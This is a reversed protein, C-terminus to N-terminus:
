RRRASAKSATLEREIATGADIAAQTEVTRESTHWGIRDFLADVDAETTAASLELVELAHRLEHGVIAISADDVKGSVVIRLVRYRGAASIKHSFGGLLRTAPGTPPPPTLFVLGDTRQVRELLDKLVASRGAAANAVATALRCDLIRVHEPLVADCGFVNTGLTMAALTTALIRGM